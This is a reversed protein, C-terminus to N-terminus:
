FRKETILDVVNGCNVNTIGFHLDSQNNINKIQKELLEPCEPFYKNMLSTLRTILEERYGKRLMGQQYYEFGQFGEKSNDLDLGVLTERDLLIVIKYFEGTEGKYNYNGGGSQEILIYKGNYALLKSLFYKDKDPVGIYYGNHTKFVSNETYILKVDQNTHKIKKGNEGVYTFGATFTSTGNFKFKDYIYHKQGDATIFYSNSKQALANALTLCAVAVTVIIYKASILNKM